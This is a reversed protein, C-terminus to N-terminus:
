IFRVEKEYPHNKIYMTRNTVLNDQLPIGINRTYQLFFLLGAIYTTNAVIIVTDAENNDEIDAILDFGPHDQTLDKPKIDLFESLRILVGFELSLAELTKWIQDRTNAGLLIIRGEAHKKIDSINTHGM